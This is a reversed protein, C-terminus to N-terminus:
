IRGEAQLERYRKNKADGFVRTSKTDGVVDAAKQAAMYLRQLEKIDGANRIDELHTLHEREDLM